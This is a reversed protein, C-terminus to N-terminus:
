AKPVAFLWSKLARNKEIPEIITMPMLRYVNINASLTQIGACPLSFRVPCRTLGSETMSQFRSPPWEAGFWGAVWETLAIM